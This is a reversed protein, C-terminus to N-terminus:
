DLVAAAKETDELEKGGRDLRREESTARQKRRSYIKV